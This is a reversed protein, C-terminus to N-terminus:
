NFKSLLLHHYCPLTVIRWAACNFTECLPFSRTINFIANTVSYNRLFHCRCAHGIGGALLRAFALVCVGAVVILHKYLITVDDAQQSMVIMIVM